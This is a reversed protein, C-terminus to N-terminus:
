VQLNLHVRLPAGHWFLPRKFNAHKRVLFDKKSKNM